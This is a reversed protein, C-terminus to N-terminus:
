TFADSEESHSHMEESHDHSHEYRLDMGEVTEEEMVDFM